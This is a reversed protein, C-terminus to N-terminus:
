IVFVLLQGAKKRSSKEIKQPFGAMIGINQSSRAVTSFDFAFMSHLNKM